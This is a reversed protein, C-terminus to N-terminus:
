PGRKFTERYRDLNGELVFPVSVYGHSTPRRICDRRIVPPCLSAEQTNGLISQLEIELDATCTTAYSRAVEDLRLHVGHCPPPRQRARVEVPLFGLDHEEDLSTSPDIDPDIRVAAIRDAMAMRPRQPLNDLARKGFERRM